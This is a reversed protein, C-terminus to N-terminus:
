PEGPIFAENVVDWAWVRGKFHGVVDHIYVRLRQILLDRSVLEGQNAFMWPAEQRHWVLCHGRVKIGNRNAWDVIADAPAFDYEGERPSLAFPKMENEAVIVNFQNELFKRTEVTLVMRSSVAAGILFQGRYARSLSPIRDGPKWGPAAPKASRPTAHQAGTSSATALLLAALWSRTKSTV